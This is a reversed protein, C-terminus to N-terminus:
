YIMTDHSDSNPDSQDMDDSEDRADSRGTKLNHMIKKVEKKTQETSIHNGKILHPVDDVQDLDDYSKRKTPHRTLINKIIKVEPPMFEDTEVNVHHNQNDMISEIVEDTLTYIKEITKTTEFRSGAINYITIFMKGQLQGLCVVRRFTYHEDDVIFSHYIPENSYIEAGHYYVKHICEDTKSEYFTVLFKMDRLNPDMGMAISRIFDTGHAYRKVISFNESDEISLPLRLVICSGLTFYLSVILLVNM